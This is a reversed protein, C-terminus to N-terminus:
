SSRTPKTQLGLRPELPPRGRTVGHRKETGSVPQWGLGAVARGRGAASGLLTEVGMDSNDITNVTSSATTLVAVPVTTGRFRSFVPAILQYVAFDSKPVSVGLTTQTPESLLTMTQGGKGPETSSM